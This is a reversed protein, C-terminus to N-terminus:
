WLALSYSVLVRVEDADRSFNSRYTANRLRLAVDKLPGSQVVYKIESDREWEKGEGVRSAVKANDGSLYRSMFSLGPIGLRAFDFDYRAQWSHENAEAFDGIQVFNILFPDSGEIYPFANDGSMHQYGATFKNGKFGYSVIGNLSTNDIKGARASGQDSSKALRLDTALTGPGVPQSAVLGVFHQKYVQDLEAYHYSVVVKDALKYDFGAMDFHDGTINAKFRKNKNNLGIDESGTDNRDKVKDLRGGSFTLNKFEKSKILGGEFSQPLIRGDNPRLTQVEPILTGIKLETRSVKVKGTLGWKSYEGPARGNDHVPLLGTGTRDPSSDLKIGLMGIADLGFGVTGDTYGSEVNLIFGQAWEDRKSQQASTGDRFDRNFYMNRTELKGSSDEIFDAFSLPSFGALAAASALAPTSLFSSRPRLPRSPTM